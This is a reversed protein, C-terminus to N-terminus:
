LPSRWQMLDDKGSVAHPEKVLCAARRGVVRLEQTPVGAVGRNSYGKVVHRGTVGDMQGRVNSVVQGYAGGPRGRGGPRKWDEGGEGGFKISLEGEEGEREEGGEVGWIVQSTVEVAFPQALPAGSGPPGVYECCKVLDLSESTHGLMVKQMVVERRPRNRAYETQQYGGSGEGGGGAAAAAEAALDTALTPLPVSLIPM